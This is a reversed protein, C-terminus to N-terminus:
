TPNEEPPTADGKAPTSTLKEPPLSALYEALSPVPRARRELGLAMLTRRQRDIASLWAAVDVQEGALWRAEADELYAALLAARRILERQAASLNDDGGLDATLAAVLDRARRAALSRGDLDSLSRLRAKLATKAM